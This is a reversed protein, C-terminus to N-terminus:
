LFLLVFNYQLQTVEEFFKCNRCRIWKGFPLLPYITSKIRQFNGALVVFKLDKVPTQVYNSQYVGGGNRLLL